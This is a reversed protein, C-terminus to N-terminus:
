YPMLLSALLFARKTVDYVHLITVLLGMRGPDVEPRIIFSIWSIIVLLSCTLFVEFFNQIKTRQLKINFGCTAWDEGYMHYVRENLSLPEIGVFHHLMPQKNNQHKFESSCNVTKVSNYYSGIKFPCEHEDFPYNEFNMHCTITFDVRTSYRLWKTRNVKFSAMDKLVSKTDYTKVASIDLDPLWFNDMQELPIFSINGKANDTWDSSSQNIRIRPELWFILFYMNLLITRKQDDIEQIEFISFVFHYNWPLKTSTVEIHEWPPENANYEKPLQWSLKSDNKELISRKKLHSRVTEDEPNNLNNDSIFKYKFAEDQHYCLSMFLLLLYKANMIM